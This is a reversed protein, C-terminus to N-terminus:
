LSSSSRVTLCRCLWPVCRKESLETDRDAHGNHRFTTCICLGPALGPGLKAPMGPPVCLKGDGDYQQVPRMDRDSVHSYLCRATHIPGISFGKSLTWRRGSGAQPPLAESVLPPTSDPRFSTTVMVGSTM